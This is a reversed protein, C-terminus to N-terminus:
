LAWARASSICACQSEPIEAARDRAEYAVNPAPPLSASGVVSGVPSGGTILAASGGEGAGCPIAHIGPPSNEIPESFTANTRSYGSHPDAHTFYLAHFTAVSMFTWLGPAEAGSGLALSSAISRFRKAMSRVIIAQTRVEVDNILKPKPM